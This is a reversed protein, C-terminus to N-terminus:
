GGFVDALVRAEAWARLVAGLDGVTQHSTQAAAGSYVTGTGATLDLTKPLDGASNALSPGAPYRLAVRTGKAPAVAFTATWTGDKNDTLAFGTTLDVQGVQVVPQAGDYPAASTSFATQTGDAVFPDTQTRPQQSLVHVRAGLVTGTSDLIAYDILVRSLAGADDLSPRLSRVRISCGSPLAM